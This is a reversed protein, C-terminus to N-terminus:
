STFHESESGDENVCLYHATDATEVLFCLPVGSVGAEAWRATAEKTGEADPYVTASGYSLSEPAAPAEVTPAAEPTGGQTLNVAVLASTAGTLVAGTTILALFWRASIRYYSM